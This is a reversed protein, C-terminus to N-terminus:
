SRRSRRAYGAVGCCSVSSDVGVGCVAHFAGIRMRVKVEASSQNNFLLYAIYDWDSYGSCISTNYHSGVVTLQRNPWGGAGPGVDMARGEGPPSGILRKLPQTATPPLELPKSSILRRSSSGCARTWYFPCTNLPFQRGSLASWRLHDSGPCGSNPHIFIDLDDGV